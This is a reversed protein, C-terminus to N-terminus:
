SAGFHFGLVSCLWILASYQQISYSSFYHVQTEKNPGFTAYDDYVSPAAYASGTPHAKRMTPVPAEAEKNVGTDYIPNDAGISMANKTIM